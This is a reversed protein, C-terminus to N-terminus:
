NQKNQAQTHKELWMTCSFSVCTLFLIYCCCFTCPWTYIFVSITESEAASTQVYWNLWFMLKVFLYTFGGQMGTM